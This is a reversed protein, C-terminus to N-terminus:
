LSEVYEKLPGMYYSDWGDKIDGFDSDPINTHILVVVTKDKEQKLQFAVQSPNDWGKQLWDQELLSNHIVKTNIGYIDGGWLSFDNGEKQDMKAPGAGWDDITKPNILADWVVSRPANLIYTKKFKKM